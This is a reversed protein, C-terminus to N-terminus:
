GVFPHLGVCGSLTTCFCFAGKRSPLVCETIDGSSNM